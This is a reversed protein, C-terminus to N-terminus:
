EAIEAWADTPSDDRRCGALDVRGRSLLGSEAALQWLGGDRRASDFVSIATDEVNRWTRGPRNDLFAASGALGDRYEEPTWFGARATLVNGWYETMGEYVWLLDDQMPVKYDPTALGIPRRYKGNWSHTFEHPMLGYANAAEHPNKLSDLGLGNDSSQHHELGEGRIVDSMSLLFHYDDYHQSAYLAVAERVLNDMHAIQEKTLDLAEPEDAGLDLYHAPKVDTAIPIEKFYRGAILPSDVLEEISVQAFTTNQGDRKAVPLATGFKWDAPLSISPVVPIQHVPIGAPYLVACSWELVDLNASTAQGTNSGGGSKVALFDFDVTISSVRDPVGVHFAYLDVSDRRWTLTEGNAHIFLGALNDIPGNPRHDGPIWQPYELTFEGASVPVTEHVHIIHRASDTLDVHIEMPVSPPKPAVPKKAAFSSAPLAVLTGVLALRLFNRAIDM